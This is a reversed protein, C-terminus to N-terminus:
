PSRRSGLRTEIRESRCSVLQLKGRTLLEVVLQLLRAFEHAVFYGVSVQCLDDLTREVEQNSVAHLSAESHAPLRSDFGSAVLARGPQVATMDRVRDLTLYQRAIARLAGEHASVTTATRLAAPELEM